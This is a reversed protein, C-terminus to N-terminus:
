HPHCACGAGCGGPPLASAGDPLSTGSREIVMGAGLAREVPADAPTGGPEVDARACVEGWTALRESMGHLVEVTRGNAPCVYEYTPM